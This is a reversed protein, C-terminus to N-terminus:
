ASGRAAARADVIRLLHNALMIIEAAEDPDDLAVHRHSQPNKYSGIAGAFLNARAERESAETAMDTLPGKEADFAKRMLHTGVDRAPLGSVERTRAEVAKMAEFVSTDYRGSHFNSWVIEWIIPHLSDKSLLRATLALRPEVALRQGHHSIERGEVSPTNRDGIVPILLGQGELWTWAEVVAKGVEYAQGPHPGGSYVRRNGAYNAPYNEEMLRRLDLSMGGMADRYLLALLRLGLEDVDMALLTDASPALDAVNVGGTRARAAGGGARPQHGRSLCADLRGALGPGARLARKM